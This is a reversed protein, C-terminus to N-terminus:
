IVDEEKCVRVVSLQGTAKKTAILVNIRGGLVEM